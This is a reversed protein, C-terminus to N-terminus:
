AARRALFTKGADGTSAFGTRVFAALISAIKAEARKDRKFRAAIAAVNVPERAEALAAAIAASQEVPDRPFAPLPAAQVPAALEAEAQEGEIPIVGARAKQYDPRLWRVIGRREEAARERNLGVLRELIAEDSLGEPWGYAELTLRDIRDHLENLVLILGAEKIREEEATLPTPAKGEGTGPSPPRQGQGSTPLPDSDGKSGAAPPGAGGKSTTMAPSSGAIWETVSAGAEATVSHIGHDLWPMVVSKSASSRTEVRAMARLKERVNYMQTLTLGPHEAQRAKRFADLEEGAARLKARLAEDPDPFPFPFFTRNSNYRPRTELTGGCYRCWVAHITSSLIALTAGDDSSISYVM